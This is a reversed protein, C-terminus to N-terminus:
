IRWLNPGARGVHDFRGTEALIRGVDVMNARCQASDRSGCCIRSLKLAVNTCGRPLQPARWSRRPETSLAAENPHETSRSALGLLHTTTGDKPKRAAQKGDLNAEAANGIACKFSVHVPQSGPDAIAGVQATGRQGRKPAGRAQGGAHHQRYCASRWARMVPRKLSEALPPAWAAPRLAYHGLENSGM